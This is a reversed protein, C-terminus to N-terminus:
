NKQWTGLEERLDTLGMGKFGSLAAPQHRRKM